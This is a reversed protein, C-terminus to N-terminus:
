FLSNDTGDVRQKERSNYLLTTLLLKDFMTEIANQVPALPIYSVGDPVNEPEGRGSTIVPEIPSDAGGLLEYLLSRIEGPDKGKGSPLLKELIGLHILLFRADGHKRIFEQLLRKFCDDFSQQNLDPDESGNGRCPIILRQQELYERLDVRGAYKRPKDLNAISEQVREDIVLIKTFVNEIYRSFYYGPDLDTAEKDKDKRENKLKRTNLIKDFKKIRSHGCAMDYFSYNSRWVWQSDHNDIFIKFLADSEEGGTGETILFGNGHTKILPKKIAGLFQLTEGAPILTAAHREWLMRKFDNVDEAALMISDDSSIVTRKPLRGQFREKLKADLPNNEFQHFYLIQHNFFRSSSNELEAKLDEFTVVRIGRALLDKPTCAFKIKFGEPNDQVVVLVEEPKRLYFKYGLHGSNGNVQPSAASADSIDSADFAFILKPYTTRPSKGPTENVVKGTRTRKIQKNIARKYEDELGDLKSSEMGKFHLRFEANESCSLPLRRLYAACVSMEITGLEAPRVNTKDENLISSNFSNNRDRVINDINDTEIDDYVRVEYYSPDSEYDLIDIHISILGTAKGHKAINRIVNELIIYFAQAGLIDNTSSIQIDNYDTLHEFKDAIKIRPVLQFSFDDTSIGSIRNLLIRNRDFGKLIESYLFMPSEMTPDATAVDALFDMRNKLYENFYAVQSLETLAEPQTKRISNNRTISSYEIGNNTGGTGKFQDPTTGLRDSNFLEGGLTLKASDVKVEDLDFGFIGNFDEPTKFKSLVHSGINHSMNRAMVQSIAARISQYILREEQSRVLVELIGRLLFSKCLRELSKHNSRDIKKDSYLFMGIKPRDDVSEKVFAFTEFSVAASATRLWSEWASNPNPIPNSIPNLGREEFKPSLPKRQGVLKMSTRSSIRISRKQSLLLSPFKSFYADLKDFYDDADSHYVFVDYSTHNKEIVLDLGTIKVKFSSNFEKVLEDVIKRLREEKRM